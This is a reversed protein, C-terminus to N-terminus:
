AKILSPLSPNDLNKILIDLGKNKDKLDVAQCYFDALISKNHFQAYFKSSSQNKQYFPLYM